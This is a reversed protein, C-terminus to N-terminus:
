GCIFSLFVSPASNVSLHGYPSKDVRFHASIAWLLLIRNRQGDWRGEQLEFTSSDVKFFFIEILFETHTVPGQFCLLWLKPISKDPEGCLRGIFIHQSVSLGLQQAQQLIHAFYGVQATQWGMFVNSELLSSKIPFIHSPCSPLVM